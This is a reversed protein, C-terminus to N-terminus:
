NIFYIKLIMEQMLLAKKFKKKDEENTIYRKITETASRESLLIIDKLERKAEENEASASKLEDFGLGEVHVLDKNPHSELYDKLQKHKKEDYSHILMPRPKCIMAGRFHYMDGRHSADVWYIKKEDNFRTPLYLKM